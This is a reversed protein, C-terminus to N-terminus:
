CFWVAHAETSPYTLIGNLRRVAEPAKNAASDLKALWQEYQSRQELLAEISNDTDPAM